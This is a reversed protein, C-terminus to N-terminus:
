PRPAVNQNFRFLNHPDYTGKVKALRAYTAEPYAEHIRGSDDNATLFNVYVGDGDPRVHQWLSETWARHPAADETPDLWIGITAFLYRKDRHAFATEEIGVRGFAGGGRIAWFLDPHEDESATVVDGNATIVRVDSGLARDRNFCAAECKRV